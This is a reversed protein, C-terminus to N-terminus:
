RNRLYQQTSDYISDENTSDLAKRILAIKKDRKSLERKISESLHFHHKRNEFNFKEGTHAEIKEIISNLTTM